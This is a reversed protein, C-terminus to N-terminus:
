KKEGQQLKSLISDLKELVGPIIEPVEEETFDGDIYRKRNNAMVETFKVQLDIDDINFCEAIHHLFFLCDVIERKVNDVNVYEKERWPKWQFSDTLESVEMFLGLSLDRALSIRNKLPSGLPDQKIMKHWFQSMEKWNNIM